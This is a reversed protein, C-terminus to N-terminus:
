MCRQIRRKIASNNAFNLPTFAIGDLQLRKAAVASGISDVARVATRVAAALDPPKPAEACM